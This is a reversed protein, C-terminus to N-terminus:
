DGYIGMGWLDGMGQVKASSSLGVGLTSWWAICLEFLPTYVFMRSSVILRVTSLFLFKGGLFLALIEGLHYYDLNKQYWLVTCCMLLSFDNQRNQPPLNRKKLM